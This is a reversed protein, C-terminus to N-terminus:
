PRREYVLLPDGWVTGFDGVLAYDRLFASGPRLLNRIFGIGNVVYTPELELVMRTPTLNDAYSLPRGQSDWVDPAPPPYFALAEPSCLGVTDIVDGRYFFGFIGVESILAREPRAGRRNLFAAARRYGNFREHEARDVQEGRPNRAFVFARRGDRSGFGYANASFLLAAAAVWSLAPLLPPLSGTRRGLRAWAHDLTAVCGFFLTLVAFTVFSPFYWAERHGIWGYLLLFLPAYLVYVLRADSRRVLTLALAPLGLLSLWALGRAGSPADSTRLYGTFVMAGADNRALAATEPVISLLRRGLDVRGGQYPRFVSPEASRGRISQPVPSGYYATSFAIWALPLVLYALLLRPRFRRSLLIVGWVLPTLLIGEPRVLPAVSALLVAALDRGTRALYLGGLLVALLLGAEFGQSLIFVNVSGFGVLMAALLSPITRSTFDRAVLYALVTAAALTVANVALALEDVRDVGFVVGLGGLLFLFAPSTSGLAPPGEM